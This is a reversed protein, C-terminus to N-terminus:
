HQCDTSLPSSLTLTPWTFTDLLFIIGFLFSLNRSEIRQQHKVTTAIKSVNVSFSYNLNSPPDIVLCHCWVRLLDEDSDDEDRKKNAATNNGHNLGSSRPKISKRKRDAEDLLGVLDEDSEEQPFFFFFLSRHPKLYCLGAFIFTIM